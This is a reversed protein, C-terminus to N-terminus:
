LARFRALYLFLIMFIKLEGMIKRLFLSKNEVLSATYGWM